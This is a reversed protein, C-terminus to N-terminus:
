RRQYISYSTQGGYPDAEPYVTFPVLLQDGALIASETMRGILPNDVTEEPTSSVIAPACSTIFVM